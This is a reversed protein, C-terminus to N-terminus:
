RLLAEVQARSPMSRAGRRAATLAGAASAFAIADAPGAGEAIRLAYAGHFADGAGTTDIADVPFAPTSRLVEPAEATIWECGREGRTVVAVRAGLAIAEKLGAHTPTATFGAFGPESFVAHDALAVLTRLTDRDAADGDLVSAVGAKRAATLAKVSGPPWRVDALLAGAGALHGQPLWDGQDKLVDGRMGVILREGSGDVLIVSHSSRMGAIRRMHSADVGHRAFDLAMADAIADDGAPGWFEARAGLRAIAVAANAAMGGGLEFYERAAVKAPPAVVRELMFVRDFATHGVCVIRM